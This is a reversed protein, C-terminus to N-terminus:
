PSGCAAIARDFAALIPEVTEQADNFVSVPATGIASKLRRFAPHKKLPLVVGAAILAGNMCWAIATPGTPDVFNGVADRAFEERCWGREILGRARILLETTEDTM